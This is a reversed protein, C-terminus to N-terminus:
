VGSSPVLTIDLSALATWFSVIHGTPLVQGSNRLGKVWVVGSFFEFFFGDQCFCEQILLLFLPIVGSRGPAICVQNKKECVACCSEESEM